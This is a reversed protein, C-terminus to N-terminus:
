WISKATITPRDKQSLGLEDELRAARKLVADRDYKVAMGDTNSVDATSLLINIISLAITKLPISNSKTYTDSGAIGADLLEADLTNVNAPTFGLLAALREKNTM